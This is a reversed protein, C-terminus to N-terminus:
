AVDVFLQTYRWGGICEAQECNGQDGAFKAVLEEDVMRDGDTSALSAPSFMTEKGWAGEELLGSSPMLWM